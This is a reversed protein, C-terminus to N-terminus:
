KSLLMFPWYLPYVGTRRPTIIRDTQSVCMPLQAGPPQGEPNRASIMPSPLFPSVSFCLSSMILLAGKVFEATRLGCYVIRLGCNAICLVGDAIWLVCDCDAIWLVCDCIRLECYVIVIRLGCYVVCLGIRLGCYVIVIRLACSVIAILLGCYVIV